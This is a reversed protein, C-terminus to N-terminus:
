PCEVGEWTVEATGDHYWTHRTYENEFSTECAGGSDFFILGGANTRLHVNAGIGVERWYLTNGVGGGDVEGEWYCPSSTQELIYEGNYDPMEPLGEPKQIGSFTIKVCQPTEGPIWIPNDGTEPWGQECSKCPKVNCYSCEDWGESEAHECISQVLAAWCGAAAAIANTEGIGNWAYAADGWAQNVATEIASQRTALAAQCTTTDPDDCDITMDSMSPDEAFLEAEDELCDLWDNYHGDEHKRICESNGYPPCSPGPPSFAHVIDCYNNGNIDPDCADEIETFKEPCVVCPTNGIASVSFKWKCDDYTPLPSSIDPIYM